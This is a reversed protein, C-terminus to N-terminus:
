CICVQAEGSLNMSVAYDALDETSGPAGPPAPPLARTTPGTPGAKGVAKLWKENLNETKQTKTM